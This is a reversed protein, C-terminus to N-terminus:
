FCIYANHFITLFLIFIRYCALTATQPNLRTCQPLLLIKFAFYVSLANCKVTNRPHTMHHVIHTCDHYFSVFYSYSIM